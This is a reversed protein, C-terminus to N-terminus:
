APKLAAPANSTAPLRQALLVSILVLAMGLWQILALQEGMLGVGAAVAILPNILGLFALKEVAIHGMARFWVFYGVGVSIPGLWVLALGGQWSLQPVPLDVALALTLLLVGSIVLQAATLPLAAIDRGLVPVLLIGWAMSHAALLAAIVGLWDPQQPAQWVLLAVGLTGVIAALLRAAGPFHGRLWKLLLVQLPVTSVLTAAMGGPLRQIATFLLFTFLGLNLVSLISVDLWRRRWVWAPM